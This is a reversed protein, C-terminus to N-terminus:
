MRNTWLRAVITAACVSSSLAAILVPMFRFGVAQSLLWVAALSTLVSIVVSVPILWLATVLQRSM